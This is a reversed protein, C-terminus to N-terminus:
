PRGAALPRGTAQQLNLWLEASTGFAAALDRALETTIQLQGDIIRDVTEKSCGTIRALHAQTWGRAVLEERIITGPQPVRAPKLNTDM